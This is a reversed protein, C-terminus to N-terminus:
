PTGELDIDLARAAMLISGRRCKLRGAIRAVTTRGLSLREATAVEGDRDILARVALALRPPPAISGAARAPYFHRDLM